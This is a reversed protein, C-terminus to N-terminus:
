TEEDDPSGGILDSVEADDEVEELFNDDEALETDEGLGVDDVEDTEVDGPDPVEVGELDDAEAVPEPDPV